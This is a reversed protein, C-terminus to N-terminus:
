DRHGSMLLQMLNRSESVLALEYDYAEKTIEPSYQAKKKHLKKKDEYGECGNKCMCIVNDLPNQTILNYCNKHDDKLCRPCVELSSVMADHQHYHNYLFLIIRIQNVIIM